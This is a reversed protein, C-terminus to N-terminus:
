GYSVRVTGCLGHLVDALAPVAVKRRGAGLGISIVAAFSLQFSATQIDEPKALLILWAGIGINVPVSWQRNTVYAVIFVTAMILARVM